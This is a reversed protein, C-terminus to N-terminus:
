RLLQEQYLAFFFPERLDRLFRGCNRGGWMQRRAAGENYPGGRYGLAYCPLKKFSLVQQCEGNM